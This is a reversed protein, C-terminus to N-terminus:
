VALPGMTLPQDRVNERSSSDVVLAHTMVDGLDGENFQMPQSTNEM